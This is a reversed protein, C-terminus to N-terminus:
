SLIISFFRYGCPLHRERAEHSSGDFTQFVTHDNGDEMDNARICFKM